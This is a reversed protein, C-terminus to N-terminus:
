DGIIKGAIFPKFSNVIKLGDSFYLFM